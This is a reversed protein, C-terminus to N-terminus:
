VAYNLVFLDLKCSDFLKKKWEVKTEFEAQQMLLDYNTGLIFLNTFEFADGM